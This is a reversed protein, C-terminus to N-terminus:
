FYFVSGNSYLYTYIKLILLICGEMKLTLHNLLFLLSHLFFHILDLLSDYNNIRKIIDRIGILLTVLVRKLILKPAFGVYDKIADINAYTSEVDGPQMEALNVIAEKGVAQEITKLFDILKVPSNNGINFIRYPAISFSPDPNEPDWSNNKIPIKETLDYIGNVIDDIYTFDRLMNGHNFLNIKKEKLSQRQLIFLAMDPRGWPGYVTFFRLGTSPINFLHSYTHAMLENSKKSAAYLSIPHDVNDSVSFPIRKNM